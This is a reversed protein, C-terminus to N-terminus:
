EHKQVAAPSDPNLNIVNLTAFRKALIPYKIAPTCQRYIPNDGKKLRFTFQMCHKIDKIPLMKHQNEAIM